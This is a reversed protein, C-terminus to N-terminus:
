KPPLKYETGMHLPRGDFCLYKLAFKGDKSDIAVLQQHSGKDGCDRSKTGWDWEKEYAEIKKFLQQQASKINSLEINQIKVVDDSQQAMQREMKVMRQHLDEMQRQVDRVDTLLQAIKQHTRSIRQDLRSFELQMQRADQAQLSVGPLTALLGAILTVVALKKM